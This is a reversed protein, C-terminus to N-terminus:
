IIFLCHCYRFKGRGVETDKIFTASANQAQNLHQQQRRQQKERRTRGSPMVVVRSLV